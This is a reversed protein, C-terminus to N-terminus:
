ALGMCPADEAVSCLTGFGISILKMTDCMVSYDSVSTITRVCRPGVSSLATIYSFVCPTNNAEFSYQLDM